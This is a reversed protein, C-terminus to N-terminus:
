ASQAYGALGHTKDLEDAVAVLQDDPANEAVIAYGDEERLVQWYGNRFSPTYTDVQDGREFNWTVSGDWLGDRITGTIVRYTVSQELDAQWSRTEFSGNPVGAVWTGRALYNNANQYALWVGEGDRVGGSNDGYYVMYDTSITSSDDEDSAGAAEDTDVASEPTALESVEVNSGTAFNETKVEMQYVATMISDELLRMECDLGMIEAVIQKYSEDALLSFVSDYNEAACLDRLQELLTLANIFVRAAPQETCDVSELWTVAAQIDGGDAQAQEVAGSRVAVDLHEQAQDVLYLIDPESRAIEIVDNFQLISQEFEGETLYREGLSLARLARSKPSFIQGIAFYVVLVLIVGAIGIVVPWRYTQKQPM